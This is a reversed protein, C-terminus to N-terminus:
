QSDNCRFFRELDKRLIEFGFNGLNYLRGFNCVGLWGILGITEKVDVGVYLKHLCRLLHNLALM